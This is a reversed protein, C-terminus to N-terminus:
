RIEFGTGTGAATTEDIVFEINDVRALEPGHHLWQILEEILASEGEAFLEVRGDSLNRVWGQLGLSIAQQQSSYRYAVGQVRGSIHCHIRRIM